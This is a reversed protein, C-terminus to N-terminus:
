SGNYAKTSRLFTATVNEAKIVNEGSVFDSATVTVNKLASDVSVLALESTAVDNKWAPLEASMVGKSKVEDYRDHTWQSDIDVISGAIGPVAPTVTVAVEASLGNAASTLTITATGEAVATVLGPPAATVWTAAM